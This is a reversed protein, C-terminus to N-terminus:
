GGNTMSGATHSPHRDLLALPRQPDFITAFTYGQPNLTGITPVPTIWLSSMLM